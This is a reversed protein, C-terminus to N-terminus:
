KMNCSGEMVVVDFPKLTIEIPKDVNIPKDMIPLKTQGGFSSRLTVRGKVSPPVDLIERLTSRLTKEHKSSNRLTFTCKQKNWSAWGYIDGDMKNKDWPNGGVWHIDALVDDNRRLWAICTALEDWLRGNEQAMLDSDLYLEMLSSGSGTAARMDNICDEPKNSVQQRHPDPLNKTIIIGHTMISNIPCLPAGTVFIEHVLRDRYTIWRDRAAGMNGVQDFDGEQRWISDAHMFWFPSAWTGVTTNIYIDPRAKRLEALVRLIGEADELEAPGYAIPKTSIGDFKFYRMDYKKVMDKCRGVFADFYIPNSLEFSSIQNNPHTKNWYAIRSRKSGGYGGVPGLWTGMGCGMSAVVANVKSFGNPFGAHFNWLSNFDDWGDDIVFADIRTKRKEFMERKWTKAIDLSIKETTRKLPDSNDHLVIGVEYWDNYHVMTRYPVNKEREVYSLFSRRQQGPAFLGIVSNVKWSGRPPLVTKRVWNGRVLNDPVTDSNDQLSGMPLSISISGNSTLPESKTEVWYRLKYNGAKPVKIRYQANRAPQGAFGPHIDESVEQGGDTVLQVGVINLRNNGGTYKFAIRCEGAKAFNVAGEAVRVDKLIPGNKADYRSGYVAQFGAPVAFASGFMEPTWKEANWTDGVNSEQMGVTMASMPTELGMFLKDTIVVTGHTTNGSITPVGGEATPIVQLPTISRFPVPRSGAKLMYEQRLYHSGDRLVARWKVGFSGDPAKFNASISWGGVKESLRLAKKNAKLQKIKPASAVMDSASLERGDGLTIRFIEGGEGVLQTGDAARLGGFTVGGDSWNFDASLVSNGITFTDGNQTASAKGPNGGPFAVTAAQNVPSLAITLLAFFITNRM